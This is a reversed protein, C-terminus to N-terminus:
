CAVQIGQETSVWSISHMPLPYYPITLNLKGYREDHFLAAMMNNDKFLVAVFRGSLEIYRDETHDMREYWGKFYNM